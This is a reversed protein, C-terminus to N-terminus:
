FDEDDLEKNEPSNQFYYNEAEMTPEYICHYTEIDLKLAVMQLAPSPSELNVIVNPDKTIAIVKIKEPMEDMISNPNKNVAIYYLEETRYKKPIHKILLPNMNIIEKLLNPSPNKIYKVFISNRIVLERIQEDSLDAWQIIEPQKMARTKLEDWSLSRYYKKQGAAWEGYKEDKPSINHIKELIKIGKITFFVAQVPENEHIIDTVHSDVFGNYGLDLFLKTWKKVNGDVFMRTINWMRGGYCPKRNHWGRTADEIAEKIDDKEMGM